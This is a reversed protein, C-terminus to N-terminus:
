GLDTVGMSALMTPAPKSLDIPRGGGNYVQGHYPDPTAVTRAYTVISPQARGRKRDWVSRRFTPRRRGPGHTPDPWSFGMGARVGRHVPAAPEPSAMTPLKCSEGASRTISRAGEDVQDGLLEALPLGGSLVRVILEFTSRTEGKTLGPWTRWSSPGLHPRTSRGLSSPSATAPDSHGRRLGGSSWPQCPPRWSPELQDPVPPLRSASTRNTCSSPSLMRNLWTSTSARYTTASEADLEVASNSSSRRPSDSPCLAREPSCTV